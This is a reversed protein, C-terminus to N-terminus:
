KGTVFVPLQCHLDKYCKVMLHLLKLFICIEFDCTRPLRVKKVERSTEEQDHWQTKCGEFQPKGVLEEGASSGVRLDWHDAAGAASHGYM